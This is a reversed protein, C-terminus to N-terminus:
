KLFGPSEEGIARVNGKVDVKLGSYWKGEGTTGSSRRAHYEFRAPGFPKGM